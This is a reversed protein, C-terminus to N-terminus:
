DFRYKVPKKKLEKVTELLALSSIGATETFHKVVQQLQEKSRCHMMAFLNYPWGEFTRREYCHSIAKFSALRPGAELLRESPVQCVFMVNAVFGLKRHNVIGGIRRIVGKYLLGRMVDLVEQMQLGGGCLFDFPRSVVQIGGQLGAIVNREIDSLEVIRNEPVYFDEEVALPDEEEADFRVDLKFVELSSLTHFAIGLKEKLSALTERIEEETEGQLTFWLNFKHARLYNHSVNELANVVDAVAQIKDEEVQATVLTSVRGLSAYNIVPGLRRLIGQAKLGLSQEIIEEEVVGLQKAIDSFPRECIPLGRQLRNCLKVQLSTLNL